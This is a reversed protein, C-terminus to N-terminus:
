ALMGELERLKVLLESEAEAESLQEIQKRLEASTADEGIAAHSGGTVRKLLHDALGELTGHEFFVAVPLALEFDSSLRKRLQVISISSLGLDFLRQGARPPESPDIELLECVMRHIHMLVVEGRRPAPTALLRQRFEGSPKASHAADAGATKEVTLWEPWFREVQFPYVPLDVWACANPYLVDWAVDCGSVYARAMEHTGTGDERGELWADIGALLDERSDGVVAMRHQHHSRRLAAAYCVGCLTARDLNITDIFVRLGRVRERLAQETHGSIPLVLVGQCTSEAASREVSSMIM